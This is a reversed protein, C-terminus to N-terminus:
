IGNTRRNVVKLLAKHTSALILVPLRSVSQKCHDNENAVEPPVVMDNNVRRKYSASTEKVASGLCVTNENFMEPLMIMITGTNNKGGTGPVQIVHRPWTMSPTSKKRARGYLKVEEESRCRGAGCEHVSLWRHYQGRQERGTTFGHSAASNSWLEWKNEAM